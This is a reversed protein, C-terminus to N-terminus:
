LESMHGLDTPSTFEGNSTCGCTHCISCINTGIMFIPSTHDIDDSCSPLNRVQTYMVQWIGGGTLRAQKWRLVGFLMLSLLVLDAIFMTIISIRVDVMTHIQCVM